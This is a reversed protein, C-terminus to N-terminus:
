ADKKLNGETNNSTELLHRFPNSKLAHRAFTTALALLIGIGILMYFVTFLKGADTAPVFDGFGVTTLTSASFYLSDVWSWSEVQHYYATGVLLLLIASLFLGLFDPSTINRWLDRLSRLMLGIM